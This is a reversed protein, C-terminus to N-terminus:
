REDYYKMLHNNSDIYFDKQNSNPTLNEASHVLIKSILHDEKSTEIELVTPTLTNRTIEKAMLCAETLLSTESPTLQDPNNIEQNNTEEPRKYKWQIRSKKFAKMLAKKSKYPMSPSPEYWLNNIIKGPQEWFFKNEGDKYYDLALALKILKNVKQKKM